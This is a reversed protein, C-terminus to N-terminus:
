NAADNRGMTVAVQLTWTQGSAKAVGGNLTQVFRIWATGPSGDCILFENWVYNGESSGATCQFTVVSGTITPYTADMAKYLKNSSAQLDTQTKVAATTSDGIGIHANSNNLATYTGGIMANALPATSGNLLM